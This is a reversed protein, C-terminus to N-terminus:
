PSGSRGMSGHQYIALYGRGGAARGARQATRVPRSTRYGGLRL